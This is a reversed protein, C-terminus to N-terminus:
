SQTKRSIKKSCHETGHWFCDLESFVFVVLAAIKLFSAHQIKKKM